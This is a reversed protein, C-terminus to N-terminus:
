YKISNVEALFVIIERKNGVIGVPHVSLEINSCVIHTKIWEHIMADPTLKDDLQIIPFSLKTLSSSSSIEMIMEYKGKDEAYILCQATEIGDDINTTNDLGFLQNYIIEACPIDIQVSIYKINQDNKNLNVAFDKLIDSSGIIALYMYDAIVVSAEENEM